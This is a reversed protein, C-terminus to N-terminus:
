GNEALSQLLRVEEAPNHASHIAGGVYFVDVGAKSLEEINSRNIGGDWAVEIGTKIKKLEDIKTTLSLDAVGGHKGLSGSFILAQDAMSLLASYDATHSSQLIALGLLSPSDHILKIAALLSESDSEVQLIIMKPPESLSLFHEVASIPDQYMLHVSSTLVPELYAEQYSILQDAGNFAPESLDIHVFNSASAVLETQEEYDSLKTATVTPVVLKM